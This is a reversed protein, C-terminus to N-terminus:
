QNRRKWRENLEDESFVEGRRVQARGEEIAAREEDSPYYLEEDRAELDLLLDAAIQQREVPWTLVRDLVARIEEKTM